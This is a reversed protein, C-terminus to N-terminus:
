APERVRAADSLVHGPTQGRSMRRLASGGSWPWDEPAKCLNARVPNLLVYRCATHFYEESDIPRSRYRDAFLHGYRLWRTNFRQAYVGMLYQMGRALNPEPTGVVLHFHTTMLTWVHLTWDTRAQTRELLALFRRRDLDDRYIPEGDVGRATVHYLGGASQPRATRAM